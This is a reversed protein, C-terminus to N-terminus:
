VAVKGTNASTNMGWIAERFGKLMKASYKLGDGKQFNASAEQFSINSLPSPSEASLILDCDLWRSYKIAGYKCCLFYYLFVIAM